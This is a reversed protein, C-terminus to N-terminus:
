DQLHSQLFWLDMEVERLIETFLDETAVDDIEQVQKIAKRTWKAHEGYRETLAALHQKANVADFNYEPIESNSASQRVTGNAYGGLTGAREALEDAHHELNEAIEDFMEHRGYFFMGRVNWHAQKVQSYLDLSNALGVNLLDVLKTREDEELDVRTPFQTTM